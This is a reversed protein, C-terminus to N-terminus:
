DEKLYAVAQAELDAVKYTAGPGRLIEVTQDIKEPRFGSWHMDGAVVVPLSTGPGYGLLSLTDYATEDVSVDVYIFPFTHTGLRQMTLRCGQCGPQGFVKIM